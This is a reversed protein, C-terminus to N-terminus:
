LIKKIKFEDIRFEGAGHGPDIRLQRGLNKNELMIYFENDGRALSQIVSNEESFPYETPEGISFFLQFTEPKASHIKIKVMYNADAEFLIDSLIMMPDPGIAQIHLAEEQQLDSRININHIAKINKLDDSNLDYLIEDSTNFIQKKFVNGYQTSFKTKFPLNREVFEEIVIDPKEDALLHEIDDISAKAWIYKAYKFYRTFYHQLYNFFSDRFVVARLASKECVITHPNTGIVGIITENCFQKILSPVKHDATLEGMLGIFNALDASSSATMEFEDPKYLYPAIKGPLLKNIKKAIEFQVFNAGYFNWHTDYKDYLVSFGNDKNKTLIPRLDVIPVETNQQLYHILQTLASEKNVKTIFSPLMESYITHKNPSVFILYQVGNQKLRVYKKTLFMAFRSLEDPTFQDMNRYDRVPSLYKEGRLFLWGKEGIIVEKSSTDGMRFKIQNHLKIIEDRLGFQDQFYTEFANPFLKVADISKPFSPRQAFKRKEMSSVQKEDFWIQVMLPTCITIFFFAVVLWGMYKNFKQM